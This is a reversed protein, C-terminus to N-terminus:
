HDDHRRGRRRARTRLAPGADRRSLSRHRPLAPVAAAHLLGHLDSVISEATRPTARAWELRPEARDYSCVMHERALTAKVWAMEDSTQAEGGEISSQQRGPAPATSSCSADTSKSSAPSAPGSRPPAPRAEFGVGYSFGFGDRTAGSPSQAPASQPALSRGPISNLATGPAACAVVVLMVAVFGSTMSGVTQLRM